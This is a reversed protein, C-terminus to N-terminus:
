FPIWHIAETVRTIKRLAMDYNNIGPGYFFRRSSTDFTGLANPSFLKTNIAQSNNRPNRNVDLPGLSPNYDPLDISVSNVGNDPSRGTPRPSQGRTSTWSFATAM